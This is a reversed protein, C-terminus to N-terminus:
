PQPSSPADEDQEARPAEAILGAKIVDDALWDTDLLPFDLQTDGDLDYLRVPAVPDGDAAASMLRHHGDTIYYQGHYKVVAPLDFGDGLRKNGMERFDGNVEAQTANLRGIPLCVALYYGTNMMRNLLRIAARDHNFPKGAVDRFVGAVSVGNTM